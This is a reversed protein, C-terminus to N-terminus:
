AATGQAPQSADAWWRTVTRVSVGETEAVETKPVGRVLLARIRDAERREEPTTTLPRGGRILDREAATRGGWVGYAEHALAHELCADVVPCRGCILKAVVASDDDFFLEPDGAKGCVGEVL